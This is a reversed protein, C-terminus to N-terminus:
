KVERHGKHYVICTALHYGSGAQPVKRSLIKNRATHIKAHPMFEQGAHIGFDPLIKFIWKVPEFDSAIM